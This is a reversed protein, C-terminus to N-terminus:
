GKSSRGDLPRVQWLGPILRHQVRAVYSQYGALAKLLIAEESVARLALLPFILLFGLLGWLSGLLLPAGAVLLLNFAYMPAEGRLLCWALDRASRTGGALAPNSAFKNTKLM